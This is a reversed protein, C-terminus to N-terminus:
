KSKSGITEQTPSPDALWKKKRHDWEKGNGRYYPLSTAPHSGAVPGGGLKELSDTDQHTKRYQLSEPGPDDGLSVEGTAAKRDPLRKRQHQHHQFISRQELIDIGMSRVSCKNADGTPVPRGYSLVTQEQDGDRGDNRLALGTIRRSGGVAMGNEAVRRNDTEWRIGYADTEYAWQM